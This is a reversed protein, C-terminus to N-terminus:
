SRVDIIKRDGICDSMKDCDLCQYPLLSDKFHEYLYGFYKPCNPICIEDPSKSCPLAVEIMKEIQKLAYTTTPDIKFLCCPCGYYNENPNKSKDCVVILDEFSRQCDPNPCVNLKIKKMMEIKRM